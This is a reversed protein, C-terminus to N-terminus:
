TKNSKDFEESSRAEDLGSADTTNGNREDAESVIAGSEAGCNDQGELGYTEEIYQTWGSVFNELAEPCDLEDSLQQRFTGWANPM